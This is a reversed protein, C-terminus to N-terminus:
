MDGAAGGDGLDDEKEADDGGEEEEEDAETDTGDVGEEEKPDVDQDFIYDM